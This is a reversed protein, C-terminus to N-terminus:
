RRFLRFALRALRVVRYLPSLIRPLRVAQWEGPGPTFTLRTLFRLRDAKRERLRMMFRFYPIQQVDHPVEEAMSQAIEHALAQAALDAHIATQLPDPLPMQLLQNALLLTIHLIREVGIEKAHRQIRTWDLAATNVIQVIDCLWLLRSWEHKAAHISLVLLLDEPSLTKVLRGAVSVTVAREFIGAMNFDVAYFSPQLAWQIEVLGVGAASDFSYEYGSAIYNAEASDPISVHPTFGLACVATKVRSVDGKRVFLDIDGSQRLALDAYYTESLAVGKYPIAELGLVQLADLLRILECALFLSKHVNREHRQRLTTLTPAPILDPLRSLNQFALSSIGHDHALRLFVEWKVPPDLAASLIPRLRDPQGPLAQPLAAALLLNWEPAIAATERSLAAVTIESAQNM